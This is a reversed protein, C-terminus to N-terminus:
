IFGKARSRLGNTLAAVKETYVFEWWIKGQRNSHCAEMIRKKEAVSKVVIRWERKKEYESSCRCRQDAYIIVFRHRAQSRHRGPSQALYKTKASSYYLVGGSVKFNGVCKKEIGAKPKKSWGRPYSETNLYDYVADYDEMRILNGVAAPPPPPPRVRTGPYSM